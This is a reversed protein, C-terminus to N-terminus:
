PIFPAPKTVTAMREIKHLLNNNKDYGEQEDGIHLSSIASKGVIVRGSEGFNVTKIGWLDHFVAIQEEYVGLYLVIHGRRYLLTEFPIANAKIYAAKQKDDFTSLDTVDGTNSQQFSNRPLWIGFPAYLDRLMASCDREEYLGGWGYNLGILANAVITMNQRTLRMPGSHITAADVETETYRASAHEDARVAQLVAKGGEKRLLPLLQGVRGNFIFRGQQDYFASKEKIVYAFRHNRYTLTEEPSLFIIESARIWGSAYATFVYIWARSKSYHSVFLPENAHVASNQMYDFPFGEGARSPNYFLPKHTPFNRLSTFNRTMAYGNLSGFADFDSESRMREFWESGLPLLNEGFAEKSTYSEFPWMCADSSMPPHTVDWISFYHELYNNQISLLENHEEMLPLYPEVKQPYYQLDAVPLAVKSCGGLLLLLLISFKKLMTCRKISVGSAGSLGGSLKLRM